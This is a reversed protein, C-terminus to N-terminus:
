VSIPSSAAPDYLHVAPRQVRNDFFQLDLGIEHLDIDFATFMQNESAGALNETLKTRANHQFRVGTIGAGGRYSSNKRLIAVFKLINGIVAKLPTALDNGYFGVAIPKAYGSGWLWGIYEFM